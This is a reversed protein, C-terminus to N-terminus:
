AQIFLLSEKKEVILQSLSSQSGPCIDYMIHFIHL